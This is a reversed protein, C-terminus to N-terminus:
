SFNIKFFKLRRFFLAKAYNYLLLDLRNLHQIKLLTKEDLNSIVVDSKSLVGFKRQGLFKDAYRAVPLSNVIANVKNFRLSNNFIKEFLALSYNQYDTLGFFSLSRLSKKALELVEDDMETQDSNNLFNCMSFNSHYSALM